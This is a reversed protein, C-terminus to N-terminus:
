EVGCVCVKMGLGAAMAAKTQMGRIATARDPAYVVQIHNSQHRAMMQDRTVGRMVAHMIPWQPTTSDWRRQTEAEPLTIAECLGIDMHLREVGGEDPEVFIRSWVVEGQKSVGKIGGGGQAFYMPPQRESVAGAYGGVLHSPPVAGSIELVWVEESTTGSRDKDSWRLDHLTNDTALGMSRWVRETILGDLGACEDVENFHTVPRGDFLVQGARLGDAAKVPPRETCNLLGEVLDSAPCMDTLGLQYQIGVCDMGWRDALRVVAIYMKFQERIQRDTLETKEDRGTKFKMGKAECWVRGADAETDSVERMAALLGSQSQREKFVNCTHLLRDPIIANYMGMCGEDFVGMIAPRERLEQALREGEKKADADLKVSSFQKVHSMDHTIKGTECWERLKAEFSAAAFDEGWLLSYKVGAKTLSGRLNLVGVLGPWQGSWNALLLIPGRHNCLGALVHQSYQWVAEAVVLPADRDIKAFVERGYAQSNVFGHPELDSQRETSGRVVEWGLRAFARRADDELAKQAPWCVVNASRRQDGSAILVVQKKGGGVTTSAAM